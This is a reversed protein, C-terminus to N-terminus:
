NITQYKDLCKIIRLAVARVPANGLIAVHGKFLTATLHMSPQRQFHARSLETLHQDFLKRPMVDVAGNMNMGDKVLNSIKFVWRPSAGSGFCCLWEVTRREGSKPVLM